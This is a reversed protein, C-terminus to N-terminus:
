GSPLEGRRPRARGACPGGVQVAHMRRLKLRPQPRRWRGSAGLCKHVVEMGHGHAHLQASVQLGRGPPHHRAWTVSRPCANSSLPKFLLHPDCHCALGSTAPRMAAPCADPRSVREHSVQWCGSDAARGQSHRGRVSCNCCASCPASHVEQRLCSRHALWRSVIIFHVDLRADRQAPVAHAVDRSMVSPGMAGWPTMFPLWGGAMYLAVQTLRGTLGERELWPLLWGNQFLVLDVRRHSPVRSLVDDMDDATTAVYLPGQSPQPRCFACLRRIRLVRYKIASLGGTDFRGGTSISCTGGKRGGGHGVRCWDADHQAGNWSPWAWHHM